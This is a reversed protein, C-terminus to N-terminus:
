GHYGAGIIAFIHHISDITIQSAFAMEAHTELAESRHQVDINQSKSLSVSVPVGHSRRHMSCCMEHMTLLDLKQKVELYFMTQVLLPPPM